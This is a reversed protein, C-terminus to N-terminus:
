SRVEGRLTNAVNQVPARWNTKLTQQKQKCGGRGGMNEKSALLGPVCRRDFGLEFDFGSSFRCNSVAGRRRKAVIHRVTGERHGGDLRALVTSTNTALPTKGTRDYGAESVTVRTQKRRTNASM